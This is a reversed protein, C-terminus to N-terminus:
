QKIIQVFVNSGYKNKVEMIYVGDPIELDIELHSISLWHNLYIEQGISNWIRIGVFDQLSGLDISFKGNFPNPYVIFNTVLQNEVIDLDEVSFCVSLTTCNNKTIEVAYVGNETPTYSQNNELPIESFNDECDIWQYNAGFANTSLVHNIYSLSTDIQQIALYIGIISDCGFSNDLYDTYFGTTYWTYDGSPSVFSDCATENLASYSDEHISLNIYIVSDCGVSNFITDTYSGSNFWTNNGSPATYSYCSSEVLISSSSELIELNIPIISDCGATNTLTDYYLGSSYWTINSSASYFSECATEYVMNTISDLISLNITLISDCGMINPITDLYIGSQTWIYNGSPSVFTNCASESVQSYSVELITLDISIISDCGLINILTDHYTGDTTWTIEGNNSSYSLCSSISQPSNDSNLITLDITLMSDCGVMNSITDQYIGSQTWTYNGSPSQYSDCISITHSGISTELITLNIPIISDCGSSNTLTDQYLGSSSWTYNESPSIYNICSSINQTTTVEELITLDITLISDCGLVNVLTDLYIGTSTWYSNGSPSIYISCAEQINYSYTTPLITINLNLISDCGVSNTLTDTYLGSNSWTYNGSPSTYSHCSTNVLAYSTNQLITLHFIMSSDCGNNNPITDFYDGSSTWNYNGSPSSYSECVTDYVVSSSAELITLNITLVSDCGNSNLITDQYVGSNSWNYNGSPSTYNYCSYQDMEYTSREWITLDIFILSDCGNSNPMTDIYNGSNTWYYNGSPSIYDYCTAISITSQTSDQITLHITMISDCGVANSITDLYIGSQSWTYQGSPSVTSYCVTDFLTASSSDLITLNYTIISISDCGQSNYITDYYTGSNNWTQSNNVSTYSYCSSDNIVLNASDMITLSITLISDCGVQNVLTDIYIGNSTWLNNGSPSLYDGCSIEYIYASSSDLITLNVIYVSDHLTGNSITTTYIGSQTYITSDQAMYEYCIEVTDYITHPNYLEFIFGPKNLEVTNLGGGVLCISDQKFAITKAMANQHLEAESFYDFIVNGHFDFLKIIADSSNESNYNTGALVISENHINIKIDLPETNEYLLSDEQYNWILSGDTRKIKHITTQNDQSGMIYFHGNSDIDARYFSGNAEYTSEWIVSDLSLEMATILQENSNNYGFLFLTDNNVNHDFYRKGILNFIPSITLDDKQISYLYNHGLLIMSDPHNNLIKRVDGKFSQYDSANFLLSEDSFGNNNWKILTYYNGWEYFIFASDGEAILEIPHVSVDIIELTDSALTLGNNIDLKHLSIYNTDLNTGFPFIANGSRFTTVYIADDLICFNGAQVILSDEFSHTWILNQNLDHVEVKVNLGVQKLSFISDNKVQIDLTYSPAYYGNDIYQNELVHGSDPQISIYKLVNNLLGSNNYNIGPEELGGLLIITDGKLRVSQGKSNLDSNTTDLTIINDFIETGTSDVKQVGWLNENSNYVGLHGTLYVEGNCNAAVGYLHHSPYPINPVTIQTFGQNNNQWDINGSKKDVQAITFYAPDSIPKTNTYYLKGNADLIEGQRLNGPDHILTEWYINGNSPALKFLQVGSNLVSEDITYQLYIDDYEDIYIDEINDNWPSSINPPSFDRQWIKLNLDDLNYKTLISQNSVYINKNNDVAIQRNYFYPINHSHTIDGSQKSVFIIKTENITFQERCVMVFKTSDYDAFDTETLNPCNKSWIVEGTQANIKWLIKQNWVPVNWSSNKDSIGYIFGDEFLNIKFNSVPIKDKQISNFTSWILKGKYNIKVLGFHKFEPSIFKSGSIIIGDEVQIDDYYFDVHGYSSDTFLFESNIQAFVGSSLIFYISLLFKKMIRFTM